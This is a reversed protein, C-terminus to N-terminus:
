VMLAIHVCSAERHTSRSPVTSMEGHFLRRCEMEGDNWVLAVQSEGEPVRPIWPNWFSAQFQSIQDQRSPQHRLPACTCVTFHFVATQIGRFWVRCCWHNVVFGWSEIGVGFVFDWVRIPMVGTPQPYGGLWMIYTCVCMHMFLICLYVCMFLYVYIYIYMCIYIYM